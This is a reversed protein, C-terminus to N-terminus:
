APFFLELKEQDSIPSLTSKIKVFAAMLEAIKLRQHFWYM